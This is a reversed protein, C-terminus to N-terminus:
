GNRSSAVSLRQIVNLLSFFLSSRSVDFTMAANVMEMIRSRDRFDWFISRAFGLNLGTAIENLENMGMLPLSM